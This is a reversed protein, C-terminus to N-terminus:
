KKGPAAALHLSVDQRENDDIHVTVEPRPQGKPLKIDAQIVYDQTGPPVRQAFEGRSDSVLEWKAKKDGARRITVPIGFAPRDEATWVTGYILAYDKVPPKRQPTAQPSPPQAFVTACACALLVLATLGAQRRRRQRHPVFPDVRSRKRKKTPQTKTKTLTM